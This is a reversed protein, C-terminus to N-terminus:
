RAGTVFRALAPWLACFDADFEERRAALVAVGSALPLRRARRAQMRQLVDAIGDLSEYGVLWDRLRFGPGVERLRPPMAHRHLELEAAVREAFSPLPEGPGLEDWRRALLHDYFVDTLVGAVRALGPPFRGRSRRHAPHGDVFRDVARHREIGRRVPAPLTALDVGRVFDGALNGLRELPDDGGLLLHALWNM